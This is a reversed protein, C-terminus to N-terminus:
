KTYCVTNGKSEQVTVEIHIIHSFVTFKDHLYRAINEATPQEIIQNLNGHDLIDVIKKIKSFDIVMGCGDLEEAKLKIIINWNHGHLNKCRSAYPLNLFHSGAIEIEKTLIYM